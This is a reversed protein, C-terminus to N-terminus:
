SQYSESAALPALVRYRLEGEDWTPDDAGQIELRSAM